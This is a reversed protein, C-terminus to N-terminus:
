ERRRRKGFATDEQQLTQESVVQVDSSTVLRTAAPAREAYKIHVAFLLVNATLLVAKLGPFFSV